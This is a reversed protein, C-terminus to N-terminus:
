PSATSVAGSVNVPVVVIVVVLAVAVRTLSTVIARSAPVFRAKVLSPAPVSVSVPELAWPLVIREAPRTRAPLLPAKLVPVIESAPPVSEPVPEAVRVNVFTTVRLPAEVSPSVTSLPRSAKVPVAVSRALLLRVSSLSTFMPRIAWAAPLVNERVFDPEAM